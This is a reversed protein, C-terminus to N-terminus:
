QQPLFHSEILVLCLIMYWGTYILYATSPCASHGWRTYHTGSRLSPKNDETDNGGGFGSGALASIMRTLNQVQESIHAHQMDMNFRLDDLGSSSTGNSLCVDNTQTVNFTFVCHNLSVSYSIQAVLFVAFILM